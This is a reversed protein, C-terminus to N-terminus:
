AAWCALAITKGAGPFGTLVTVPCWRAGQTILKTIRPREVAWDPVDPATVKATRIPEGASGAEGAMECRDLRAPVLSRIPATEATATMCVEGRDLSASQPSGSGTDSNGVPVPRRHAVFGSLLAASM